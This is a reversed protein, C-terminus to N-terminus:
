WNFKEIMREAIVMAQERTLVGQPDFNSGIGNMLGCEYAYCVYPLAWSSISVKDGYPLAVNSFIDGGNMAKVAASIIKACQERMLTADPAFSDADIGDIMGLGYGKVIQEAFPSAAIDTFPVPNTPKYTGKAYEYVNVMLATFEARTISDTYRSMLSSPIVGRVSLTDIDDMAWASPPNSTAATLYFQATVGSGDTAAATIVATGARYVTVKGEADVVAIAPDSASWSLAKNSACSPSVVASLAFTRGIAYTGAAESFAISHVPTFDRSPDFNVPSMPHASNYASTNYMSERIHDSFAANNKLFCRTQDYSDDWTADINYWCQGIKAINWAHSESKGGSVGMGNIKRVPVGADMLMKYMMLAYGNCVTKKSFLGEYASYKSLSYDYDVNRIIYDHIAKIKGYTSKEDLSLGSLIVPVTADVYAEQAATTLYTQSFELVAYTGYWIGSVYMNIVNGYLYDLDSTTYPLDVSFIDTWLASDNSILSNIESLSSASYRVTFYADRTVFQEAMTEVLSGYDNVMFDVTGSYTGSLNKIPIVGSSRVAPEFEYTGTMKVMNLASANSFLTLVIAIVTGVIAVTKIYKKM